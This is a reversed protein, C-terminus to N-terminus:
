PALLHLNETLKEFGRLIDDDTDGIIHISSIEPPTADIDETSILDRPGGTFIYRCAERALVYSLAPQFATFSQVIQFGHAEAFQGIKEATPLSGAVVVAEKRSSHRGLLADTTVGFLDALACLMMIDPLTYNNEWKSVAAATVGLQAALEEQTVNKQKRLEYIHKGINM